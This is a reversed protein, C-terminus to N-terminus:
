CIHLPALFAGSVQANWDYLELAAAVLYDEEAVVAQEYTAMRPVSLQKYILQAQNSTSM